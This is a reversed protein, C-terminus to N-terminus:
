LKKKIETEEFIELVDGEEIATQSDILIGCELGKEVIEKPSKNQQLESINGRGIVEQRRKIDALAEKKIIGEEVRGGVIQKNGDKKFIKLIKITGLDQRKVEPPILEEMFRKIEDLVEYIVEGNIIRINEKDATELVSSDIKVKFGVITVLKTAQAMKVDSENIDGVESRLIKVGVSESEIKQIAEGLAEKSGVVDTKLIINFVPRAADPELATEGTFKKKTEELTSAFNEAEDKSTFARFTDGASPMKGLGAVLAPSSPPATERPKGRFDELIKITEVAEGIVAAAGKKLTGEHVLLTATIGRQPDMHAELVVGQANKAPDYELNELEALLLLIELLEDMNKATKASIEVSPVKGGYSEVLVNEKALEQKVRDPNAEPKDIKNLAVVFPIGNDRIIEIAEQTQPKVGEDAAVVLIALDAVKAGRSRLKSFAEHGPTDIFTIKKGKHEVEYAGIHQTIGGAEYELMKTQRITELIKSKGHDIHGVVVVIPPRTMTKPSNQKEKILDM